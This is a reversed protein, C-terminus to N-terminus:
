YKPIGLCYGGDIVISSGVAYSASPSLLYMVAGVIEDVTGWRGLPIRNLKAQNEEEGQQTKALREVIETGIVGPCVANVLIGYPALELALVRTFMIMGAKSAAYHACGPRAIISSTSSVNVIRGPIGHDIMIRAAARSCLYASKLNTDLVRDWEKEEMELVPLVPFIGANNVLFDISGFTDVVTAVMNNVDAGLTVDAKVPLATGGKGEIRAANEKLKTESRAALAVQAGGLALSEALASGIGSSAGTVIATKGKLWSTDM